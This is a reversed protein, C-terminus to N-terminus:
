DIIKETHTLKEESNMGEMVVRMKKGTDNNYFSVQIKNNGPTTKIVPAWYLTTRTDSGSLALKPDSYDPSYFERIASYGALIGRPLGAGPEFTPPTTYIVIAGGPAGMIGGAFPARFVKIYSIDMLDMLKLDEWYIQKEDIFIQVLNTLAGMSGTNGRWFLGEETRKKDQNLFTGLRIGPVKMQIFTLLSIKGLGKDKVPDLRFAEQNKFLGSSYKDDLSDYHTKITGTVLVGPLTTQANLFVSPLSANLQRQGTGTRSFNTNLHPAVPKNLLGNTLSLGAGSALTTQGPPMNAGTFQAPITFQGNAVAEVIPLSIHKLPNGDAEYLDVYFNRSLQSLGTGALLYAKFWITEGPLYVSKDFQLYVKEKPSRRDFGALLSDIRQAFITAPITICILFLCLRQMSLHVQRAM